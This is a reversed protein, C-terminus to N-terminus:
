KSEKEALEVSIHSIHKLVRCGRGKARARMRKLTPGQDVQIKSVYLEDIDLGFNNEANAIASMLLKHIITATKKPSYALIDLAKDINKGRILDAVLRAKQPGVSVFRLQASVQM